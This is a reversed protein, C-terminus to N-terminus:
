EKLWAKILDAALEPNEKAYKEATLKKTDDEIEMVEETGDFIQDININTDEMNDEEVSVEEKPKKKVLIARGLVLLVVIGAIRLGWAIYNGYLAKKEEKSRIDELEKAVEDQYSKDFSISEVSILDGRDFDYGTATAVLNQIKEIEAETLNGDYVVSTTMRNVKGPAKITTKTEQSLENNVSREYTSNDGNEGATVNSINDDINGGGVFTNVNPGTAKIEESRIVPNEYTITTTEEADFDLDAYVSVKIKEQGLASGLLNYVNSELKREFGEQIKQYKDLVDLSSVDDNEEKLIGSLLNGKSDIIQVNAEPLNDVAGSILAAIGKIMENTVKQSPKIDIIVSASSEKAESEFITKEPIMLHVKASNVVDLSMISRQLEGAIARQYMIKRDEDTAMLGVDDFIEFGTSNEPMMGDMALQLRYKDVQKEDILIDRGDNELKYSMKKSELDSIINGADELELNRFLVVYNTKKSVYTFISAILIVIVFVSVLAIKKKTDIKNWGNKAGDIIETIKEM